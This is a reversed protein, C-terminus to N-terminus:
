ASGVWRDDLNLGGGVWGFGGGGGMGNVGIRGGVGPPGGRGGVGVGM